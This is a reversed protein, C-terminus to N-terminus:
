TLTQAGANVGLVSPSVDSISPFPNNVSLTLSNSVGGGPPPNVVTISHTATEAIDSAPLFAQLETSSIFRTAREVGDVRVFAWNVFDSANVILTFTPGGVIVFNPSLSTITPDCQRDAHLQGCGHNFTATVADANTNVVARADPRV